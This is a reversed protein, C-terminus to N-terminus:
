IKWNEFLARLSNGGLVKAIDEDSYDNAWLEDVLAPYIKAAEATYYPDKKALEATLKSQHAARENGGSADFIVSQSRIVDWMSKMCFVDDSALAIHDIGVFNRLYNVARVIDAPTTETSAPGNLFWPSSNVAIVGGSDAVAKVLEDSINRFSPCLTAPTSHSVLVPREPDIQRSYSIASLATEESMHSIDLAIQNEILSEIVRKGFETVPGREQAMCGDGAPDNFNYTLSLTGLGMSKLRPLHIEPAGNLLAAGQASYFFAINNDAIAATIDDENQALALGDSSADIHSRIHRDRECATEFDHNLNSLSIGFINIGAKHARKFYHEFMEEEPWGMKGAYIHTDVMAHSTVFRSAEDSSDFYRSQRSM